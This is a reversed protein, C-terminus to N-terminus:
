KPSTTNREREALASTRALYNSTGFRVCELLKGENESYLSLAFSRISAHRHFCAFFTSL